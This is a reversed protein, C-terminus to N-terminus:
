LVIINGAGSITWRGFFAVGRNWKRQEEIPQIAYQVYVYVDLISLAGTFNIFFVLIRSHTNVNTYFFLCINVEFLISLSSSFLVIHADIVKLWVFM